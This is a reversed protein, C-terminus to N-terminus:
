PIKLCLSLIDIHKSCQKAFLGDILFVILPEVIFEIQFELKDISGNILKTALNRYKFVFPYLM